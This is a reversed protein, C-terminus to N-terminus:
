PLYKLFEKSNSGENLILDLISVGHVFPGHIQSYESYGSYDWYRVEIGREVFVAEDMYDRAAPGSYYQTIGIDSCLNVLRENRDDVLNFDKSRLIETDIKFFRNIEKIFHLNIDTLLDHNCSLYMDSLWNKMEGICNADKYHVLLANLHDIKWDSGVVATENIRQFYKGKVQVPISLWKLGNATKIQNRNRWDRKTYQMEDYVVFVDCEAMADFYAKWPIYNSQTICGKM